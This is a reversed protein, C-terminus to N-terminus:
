IINSVNYLVAYQWLVAYVYQAFVTPSEFLGARRERLFQILWTRLLLNLSGQDLLAREVGEHPSAGNDGTVIDSETADQSHLTIESLFLFSVVLVCRTFYIHISLWM